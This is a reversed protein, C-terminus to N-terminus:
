LVCESLKHLSNHEKALNLLNQSIISNKRALVIKDSSVFDKFLKRGILFTGSMAKIPIKTTVVVKQNTNESPIINNKPAFQYPKFKSNKDNIIIIDGNILIDKFTFENLDTLIKEIYFNKDFVIDVIKGYYNGLVTFVKKNLFQILNEIQSVLIKSKNKIMIKDYCFSFIDKINLIGKLENNQIVFSSLKGKSNIIGYKITGCTKGEFISIIEKNLFNLYNM